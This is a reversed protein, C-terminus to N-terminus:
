WDHPSMTIPVGYALLFGCLLLGVRKGLSVHAVGMTTSVRTTFLYRIAIVDIMLTVLILAFQGPRSFVLPEDLGPMPTFLYISFTALSLLVSRTLYVGSFWWGWAKRLLLGTAGAIALGATLLMTPLISLLMEWFPFQGNGSGFIESEGTPSPSSAAMERMPALVRYFGCVFTVLSYLTIAYLYVILAQMGRDHAQLRRAMNNM